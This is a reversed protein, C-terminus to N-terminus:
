GMILDRRGSFCLAPGSGLCLQSRRTVVPQTPICFIHIKSEAIFLGADTSFFGRARRELTFEDMLEITVLELGVHAPYFFLRLFLPASNLNRCFHSLTGYAKLNMALSCLAIKVGFAQDCGPAHRGVIPTAM